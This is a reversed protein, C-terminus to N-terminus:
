HTVFELAGPFAEPYIQRATMGDSVPKGCFQAVAMDLIVSPHCGTLAAEDVVMQITGLSADALLAAIIDLDSM